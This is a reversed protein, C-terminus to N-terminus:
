NNNEQSDPKDEFLIAIAFLLLARSVFATIVKKAFKPESGKGLPKSSPKNQKSTKIYLVDTKSALIRWVETFSPLSKNSLFISPFNLLIGNSWYRPIYSPYEQATYEQGKRNCPATCLGKLLCFATLETESAAKRWNVGETLPGKWFANVSLFIDILSFKNKPCHSRKASVASKSGQYQDLNKERMKNQSFFHLEGKATISM